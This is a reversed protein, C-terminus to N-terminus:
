YTDHWWEVYAPWAAYPWPGTRLVEPNPEGRPTYGSYNQERFKKSSQVIAHDRFTNKGCRSEYYTQDRTWGGGAYGATQHYGWSKLTNVANSSSKDKWPAARTPRPFLWHGCSCAADTLAWNCWGAADVTEEQELSYETALAFFENAHAYEDLSVISTGLLLVM